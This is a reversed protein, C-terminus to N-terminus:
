GEDWIVREVWLGEWWGLGRFVDSVYERGGEM